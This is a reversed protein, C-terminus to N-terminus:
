YDYLFYYSSFSFMYLLGFTFLAPHAQGLGWFHLLLSSYSPVFTIMCTLLVILYLFFHLFHSSVLTCFQLNLFCIFSSIALRSSCSFFSCDLWSFSVLWGSLVCFTSIDGYEHLCFSYLSVFLTLSVIGFVGCFFAWIIFFSVCDGLVLFTKTDSPIRGM